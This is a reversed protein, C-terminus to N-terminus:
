ANSRLLALLHSFTVTGSQPWNETEWLLIRGAEKISTGFKLKAQTFVLSGFPFSPHKFLSLCYSMLAQQVTGVVPLNKVTVKPLMSWQRSKVTSTMETFWIRMKGRTRGFYLCDNFEWDGTHSNDTTHISLSSNSLLDTQGLCSACGQDIDGDRHQGITTGQLCHLRIKIGTWCHEM